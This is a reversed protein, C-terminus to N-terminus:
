PAKAALAAWEGEEPLILLNEKQAESWAIGDAASAIVPAPDGRGYVTVRGSTLSPTTGGLRLQIRTSPSDNVM